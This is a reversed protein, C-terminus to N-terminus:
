KKTHVTYNDYHCTANRSQAPSLRRAQQDMEGVLGAEIEPLTLGWFMENWARDDAAVTM